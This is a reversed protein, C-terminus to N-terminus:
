QIRMTTQAKVTSPFGLSFYSVLPSVSLTANVRIYQLVRTDPPNGVSCTGTSCNVATGDTCTCYNGAAGAIVNPFTFSASSLATDNSKLTSIFSNTGTTYCASNSLGGAACTSSNRVYEAVARTAGQLSAGEGMVTGYDVAGLALLVLLPATIAFEVAAAGSAGRGERRRFLRSMSNRKILM